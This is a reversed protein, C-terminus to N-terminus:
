PLHITDKDMQHHIMLNTPTLIFLPNTLKTPLGLTPFLVNSLAIIPLFIAILISVVIHIKFLKEQKKM